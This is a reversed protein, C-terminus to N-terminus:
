GVVIKFNWQKKHWYLRASNTELRADRGLGMIEFVSINKM